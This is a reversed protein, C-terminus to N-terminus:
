VPTLSFQPWAHCHAIKCSLTPLSQRNGSESGSTLNVWVLGANICCGARRPPDWLLNPSVWLLCLSRQQRLLGELHAQCKWYSQCSSVHLRASSIHESPLTRGRQAVLLAPQYQQLGLAGAKTWTKVTAIPVSRYLDSSSAWFLHLMRTRPHVACHACCVM